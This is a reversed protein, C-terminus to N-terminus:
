KPQGNKSLWLHGWLLGLQSRAECQQQVALAPRRHWRHWAAAFEARMLEKMVYLAFLWAPIPLAQLRAQSRGIRFFRTRVFSPTLQERSLRHRVSIPPAYILRCGARRMRMSFETDM